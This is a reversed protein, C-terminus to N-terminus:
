GSSAAAGRREGSGGVSRQVCVRVAMGMRAVCQSVEGGLCGADVCGFGGSALDSEFISRRQALQERLPQILADPLVTVRDKNGKGARVTIQRQELNVDKVRLRLGELLRMGTGYLLRVVLPAQGTSGLNALLAQVQSRTLVTPLREPKKARTVGSLWPLDVQLIDRYLFLIAALAQNQTSASVNRDVALSTLFAEVEPAGMDRPHRKDHFLIFRRIWDVYSAETRLSFHKSRVRLRVQDLLRPAQGTAANRATNPEM